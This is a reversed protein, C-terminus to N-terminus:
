KKPTQWEIRQKDTLKSDFYEIPICLIKHRGRSDENEILSKLKWINNQEFCFVAQGGNNNGNWDIDMGVHLLVWDNVSYSGGNKNYIPFEGNHTTHVTILHFGKKNAKILGGVDLDKSIVLKKNLDVQSGTIKNFVSNVKTETAAVADLAQAITFNEYSIKNYFIVFFLSIILILKYNGKLIKLIDNKFFEKFM